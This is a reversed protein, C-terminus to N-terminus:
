ANVVLRVQGSYDSLASDEGTITKVPIDQLAAM